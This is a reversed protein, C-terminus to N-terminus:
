RALRGQGAPIRSIAHVAPQARVHGPHRRGVAIRRALSFRRVACAGHSNYYQM